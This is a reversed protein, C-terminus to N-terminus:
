VFSTLFPQPTTGPGPPSCCCNCVPLKMTFVLEWSLPCVRRFLSLCMEVVEVRAVECVRSTNLIAVVSCFFIVLARWELKEWLIPSSSLFFARPLSFYNRDRVCAWGSQSVRRSFTLSKWPSRVHRHIKLALWYICYQEMIPWDFHVCWSQLQRKTTILLTPGSVGGRKTDMRQHTCKWKRHNPWMVWEKVEGTAWPFCKIWLLSWFFSAWIAVAVSELFKM